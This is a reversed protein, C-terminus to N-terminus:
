SHYVIDALVTRLLVIKQKYYKPKDKLLDDVEQQIVGSVFKKIMGRDQSGMKKKDLYFGVEERLADLPRNGLEFDKLVKQLNEIALQNIKEDIQAQFAELPLNQLAEINFKEKESQIKELYQQARDLEETTKKKTVRESIGIADGMKNVVRKRMEEFVGKAPEFQEFFKTKLDAFVAETAAKMTPYHELLKERDELEKLRIEMKKFQEARAEKGAERVARRLGRSEVRFVEQVLEWNKLNLFWFTGTASEAIEKNKELNKREAAAEQKAKELNQEGGWANIEAELSEKEKILLQYNQLDEMRNKLEEPNHLAEEDLFRELPALDGKGLKVDFAPELEKKYLHTLEKKLFERGEFAQYYEKLEEKSLEKEGAEEHQAVFDLFDKNNLAENFVGEGSVVELKEEGSEKKPEPKTVEDKLEYSYEEKPMQEFKAM